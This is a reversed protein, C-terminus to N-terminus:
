IINMITPTFESPATEEDGASSYAPEPDHYKRVFVDDFYQINNYARLYLKNIDSITNRNAVDAKYAGNVWLDFTTAGQLIVIKNWGTTYGLTTDIYSSGNYGYVNGSEFKIWAGSKANLDSANTFSGLILSNQRNTAHTIYERFEVVVSDLTAGIVESFSTGGVADLQASHTPSFSQTESLSNYTTIFDPTTEFDDFFDFTSNGNSADSVGSKGYYIYIDQNSGLDDTVKVWVTIPDSTDEIWYNLLTEEDNDTFRIDNPFDDCHGELHFDGGSSAGISLKVQYDTGSDSQGTITIKKRYTYDTLWAM